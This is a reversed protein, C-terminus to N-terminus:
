QIYVTASKLHRYLLMTKTPLTAQVQCSLKDFFSRSHFVYWAFKWELKKQVLNGWLSCLCGFYDKVNVRDSAIQRNMHIELGSLPLNDYNLRPRLVSLSETSEQYGEIALIARYDNKFGSLLGTDGLLLGFIAEISTKKQLTKIVCFIKLDSVFWPHLSICGFCIDIPLVSHEFIYNYLKQNEPFKKKKESMNTSLRNSQKFTVNTANRGYRDCFVSKTFKKSKECSM